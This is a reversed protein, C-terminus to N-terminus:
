LECSLRALRHERLRPGLEDWSLNIFKDNFTVIIFDHWSCISVRAIVSPQPIASCETFRDDM